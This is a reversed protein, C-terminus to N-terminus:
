VDQNRGRRNTRAHVAAKKWVAVARENIGIMKEHWVFSVQVKGALTWSCCSGSGSGFPFKGWGSCMDIQFQGFVVQTVPQELMHMVTELWLDPVYVIPYQLLGGPSRSFKGSEAATVGAPM